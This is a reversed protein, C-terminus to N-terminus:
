QSPGTGDNKVEGSVQRALYKLPKMKFGAM